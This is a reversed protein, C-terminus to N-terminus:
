SEYLESFANHIRQIGEKIQEHSTAYSIRFNFDCGFAQGPVVVVHHKDLMFDALEISNTITKGEATVKGYGACQPFLYFAGPAKDVSLGPIKSLLDYALNRREEFIARMKEVEDQSGSIAALAAQQSISCPSSTFQSQIKKVGQIVKEHAAIYGIRWGTMAYAKSVGNVVIVRDKIQPYQALSFHQNGDYLLKEYIEDSIVWVNSEAIVTVLSELEEKTYVAGSPNNPSNIIIAKTQPTITEKLQQATIKYGSEKTTQVFVSKGHCLTVMEPYSLWYPAPIIIEDGPNILAMLVNSISHKAGCSVAINKASYELDNDTKLKGIIADKLEDIGVAATYRTFNNEIATIGQQKIHEPTPFDPEGVTFGIIDKGQKKLENVKAVLQLTLSPTVKNLTQNLQM